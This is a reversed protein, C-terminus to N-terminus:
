HTLLSLNMSCISVIPDYPSVKCDECTWKVSYGNHCNYRTLLNRFLIDFQSIMQDLQIFEDLINECESSSRHMISMLIQNSLLSDLKYRACHTLYTNNLRDKRQCGRDLKCARRILEHTLQDREQLPNSLVNTPNLGELETVPGELWFYDSPSTAESVDHDPADFKHRESDPSSRLFSATHAHNTQLQDTIKRVHYDSFTRSGQNALSSKPNALGIILAFLALDPRIKKM